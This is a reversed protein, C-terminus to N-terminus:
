EEDEKEDEDLGKEDSDRIGGGEGIAGGEVEDLM